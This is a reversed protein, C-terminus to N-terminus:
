SHLYSDRTRSRNETVHNNHISEGTAYPKEPFYFKADFDQVSSQSPFRYFTKKDPEFYM